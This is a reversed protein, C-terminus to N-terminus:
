LDNGVVLVRAAAISIDWYYDGTEGAHNYPIVELTKILPEVASEGMAILADIANQRENESGRELAEILKDIKDVMTERFGYM